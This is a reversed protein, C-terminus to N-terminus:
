SPLSPQTTDLANEHQSLINTTTDLSLDLYDNHGAGVFSMRAAYSPGAGSDLGAPTAAMHYVDEVRECCGCRAVIWHLRCQM